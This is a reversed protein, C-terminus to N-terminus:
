HSPTKGLRHTGDSHLCRLGLFVVPSLYMESWGLSNKGVLFLMTNIILIFIAGTSSNNHRSSLTQCECDQRWKTSSCKALDLSHCAVQVLTERIASSVLIGTMRPWLPSWVCYAVGKLSSSQSVPVRTGITYFLSALWNGFESM